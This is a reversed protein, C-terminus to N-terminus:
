VVTTAEVRFSDFGHRPFHTRSHRLTEFKGQEGSLCLGVDALETTAEGDRGGGSVLPSLSKERVTSLAQLLERATRMVRRALAVGDDLLEDNFQTLMMARPCWVTGLGEVMLQM